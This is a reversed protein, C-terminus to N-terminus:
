CQPLAIWKRSGVVRSYACLAHPAGADSTGRCGCPGRFLQAPLLTFATAARLGPTFPAHGDPFCAVFPGGRHRTPACPYLLMSLVASARSCVPPCTLSCPCCPDPTTALSSVFSLVSLFGAPSLAKEEAM